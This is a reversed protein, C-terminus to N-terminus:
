TIEFRKAFTFQSFQMSFLSPQELHACHGASPVQWARGCGIQRAMQRAIEGYRQDQEGAVLLTPIVCHSLEPWLPRMTGTGAQELARALGQPDQARRRAQMAARYPEAITAQRSKRQSGNASIRTCRSGNSSSKNGAVPHSGSPPPQELQSSKRAVSAVSTGRVRPM